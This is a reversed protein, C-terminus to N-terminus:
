DNGETDTNNIFDFLKENITDLENELKTIEKRIDIKRKVLELNEGELIYLKGDIMMYNNLSEKEM